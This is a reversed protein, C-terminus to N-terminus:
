GFFLKWRTLDPQQTGTLNLKKLVTTDLGERMMLVPVEYITSADAAEV